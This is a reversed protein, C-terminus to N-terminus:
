FHLIDMIASQQFVQTPTWLADEQLSRDVREEWGQTLADAGRPSTLAVLYMFDLRLEDQFVRGKVRGGTKAGHAALYELRKRVYAKGASIVTNVQQVFEPLQLVAVRARFIEQEGRAMRLTYYPGSTDRKHEEEKKIREQTLEQKAAAFRAFAQQVPKIAFDQQRAICVVASLLCVLVGSELYWEKM